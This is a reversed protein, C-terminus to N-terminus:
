GLSLEKQADTTGPAWVHHVTRTPFAFEINEAQLRKLIRLNIEQQVDMYVGYAPDCAFYVVEFTLASDGFSKFHVRDLRASPTARVCERLIEAVRAVKEYPTDYTIGILSVNRRETLRKFNRIRSNVLDANGMILEEGNDSRIRTTKIGIREVKGSFDGVTIADGVVFPKDLLITISAFLDGLVTQLALAIAIGGVGLGTILPTVEVGVNQLCLLVITTWVLVQGLIALISAGMTRAPDAAGRSKVLRSIGYAVLGQAWIGAQVLAFLVVGIRAYKHGNEPLALFHVGVFCSLAFVFFPRTRRLLDVLLDDVDTETREALKALRAAVLRKAISLIVFTGVLGAAAELWNQVPNGLFPRTLFEEFNTM